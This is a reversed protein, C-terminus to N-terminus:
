IQLVQRVRHDGVRVAPEGAARAGGDRRVGGQEEGLDHQRPALVVAVALQEGVVHVRGRELGEARVSPLQAGLLHEDLRAPEVGGPAAHEAAEVDEAGDHQDRRRRVGLRDQALHRRGDV